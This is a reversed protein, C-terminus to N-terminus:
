ANVHLLHLAHKDPLVSFVATLDRAILHLQEHIMHFGTERFVLYVGSRARIYWFTMGYMLLVREYLQPCIGKGRLINICFKHRFIKSSFNVLTKM